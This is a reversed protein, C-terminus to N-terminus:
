QFVIPDDLNKCFDIRSPQSESGDSFVAKILQSCGQNNTSSDWIMKAQAGVGVGSGIDFYGWSSGNESVLLQKIAASSNNRVYFYWQEASAANPLAVTSLALLAISAFVHNKKFM